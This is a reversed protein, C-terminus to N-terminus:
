ENTTTFFLTIPIIMCSYLDKLILSFANSYHNKTLYLDNLTSMFSDECRRMTFLTTRPAIRACINFGTSHRISVCSHNASALWLLQKIHLLDFVMSVTTHNIYFIKLYMQIIIVQITNRHMSSHSKSQCQEFAAM